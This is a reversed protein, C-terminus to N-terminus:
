ERKSGWFVTVYKSTQKGCSFIQDRTTHCSAELLSFHTIAGMNLNLMDTPGMTSLNREIDRFYSLSFLSLILLMSEESSPVNTDSTSEESSSSESSGTDSITTVYSSVMGASVFFSTSEPIELILTTIQTFETTVGELSLTTTTGPVNFYIDTSSVTLTTSYSSDSGRSDEPVTLTYPTPDITLTTAALELRVISNTSVIITTTLGEITVSTSVGDTVVETVFPPIDVVTSISESLDVYTTSGTYSMYTAEDSPWNVITETLSDCQKTSSDAESTCSLTYESQAINSHTNYASLSATIDTGTASITTITGTIVTQITTAPIVTYGVTEPFTTVITTVVDERAYLAATALM